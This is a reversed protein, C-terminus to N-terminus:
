VGSADTNNTDLAFESAANISDTDAAFLSVLDDYEYVKNTGSDVVWLSTGDFMAGVPSQLPNSAMDNLVKSVTVSGDAKLYRYFRTEKPTSTSYDLVYLYTSDIALGAAGKNDKDLGIEQAANLTGPGPFAAGLPYQYINKDNGSVVWMEDHIDDYIALGQSLGISSPGDLKLLDKSVDLLNGCCDYKYVEHDPHDLVYIYSGVAAVGVPFGSVGSLDFSDVPTGSDDYYKYIKSNGKDAVNFKYCDCVEVWATFTSGASTETDSFLGFTGRAAIGLLLILALALILVKKM